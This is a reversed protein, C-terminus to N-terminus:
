YILSRDVSQKSKLDYSLGPYTFVLAMVWPFWFLSFSLYSAIQNYNTLKAKFSSCWRLLHSNFIREMWKARYIFPCHLSLKLPFRLMLVTATLRFISFYKTYTRNESTRIYRFPDTLIEPLNYNTCWYKGWIKLELYELKVGSSHSRHCLTFYWTETM